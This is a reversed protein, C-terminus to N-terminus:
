GMLAEEIRICGSKYEQVIISEPVAIFGNPPRVTMRDPKELSEHEMFINVDLGDLTLKFTQFNMSPGITNDFCVDAFHDEGPVIYVRSYDGADGWFEETQALANGTLALTALVAAFLRM